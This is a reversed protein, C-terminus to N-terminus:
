VGYFSRIPNVMARSKAALMEQNRMVLQERFTPPQPIAQTTPAAMEAPDNFVPLLQSVPPDFKEALAVKAKKTCAHTYFLAHQTLGAKRCIPCTQKPLDVDKKKQKKLEPPPPLEEPEPKAEPKAKAKARSARKKKPAEIEAVPEPLDEPEEPPAAPEPLEETDEIAAVPEEIVVAKKSPM